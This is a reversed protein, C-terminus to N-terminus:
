DKKKDLKDLGLKKVGFYVVAAIVCFNILTSLLAGYKITAGLLEFTATELGKVNNLLIGLLPNIINDIISKVLDSVAGGLIFGVALGVAGQERIFNLFGKM